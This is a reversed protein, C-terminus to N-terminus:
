SFAAEFEFKISPGLEKAACSPLTAELLSFLLKCNEFDAFTLKFDSKPAFM